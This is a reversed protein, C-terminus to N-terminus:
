IAGSFWESSMVIPAHQGSCGLTLRKKFATVVLRFSLPPTFAHPFTDGGTKGM